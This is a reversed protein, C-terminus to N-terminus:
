GAEKSKASLAEVDAGKTTIRYRVLFEAGLVFFLILAQLINAAAEPINFAIQIYAGGELLAAFLVSVILIVPASLMSLWSVIIATYGVNATIQPMLTKAVGSVQVMGALGCIAGSFLVTMIIRRRINIGAYLATRESEGIVSIEYGTRTHRMFVYLVGVLILAIIWGAHIGFVEPLAANESFNAIKPFGHAAPDKWPGQQLFILFNLAVYNLLLTIITENTKWRARLWAPVLAWLAGGAMGAILMCLLLVPQPLDPTNLAFFTAFIAGMIIQGEGGINWFQMRFALGIGLSTILLPIAKKITEELRYGNGFAGDVLSAYVKLPDLGMLLIFIGATVLSLGVAYLRVRVAHGHTVEKRRIFHIM